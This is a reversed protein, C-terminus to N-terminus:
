NRYWLGSKDAWSSVMLPDDLILFINCAPTAAVTTVIAAPIEVGDQDASARSSNRAAKSL